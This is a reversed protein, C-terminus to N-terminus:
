ERASDYRELWQDLQDGDERVRMRLPLPPYAPDLPLWFEFVQDGREVRVHEAEVQREGLRVRENGMREFRYDALKTASVIPLTFDGTAPRALALQYYM